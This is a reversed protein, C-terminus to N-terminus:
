SILGRYYQEGEWDSKSACHHGPHGRHHYACVWLLNAATEVWAGVQDPTSLGPYDLDLLDLSIGNLLAWEIHAHHLEIGAQPGGSSVPHMPDPQWGHQALFDPDDLHPDVGWETFTGPTQVMEPPPAPNGQADKCSGFGLRVGEVCRAFPRTSRHYHNFDVYHPDDPRAGHAPYAMTYRHTIAQNHAPVSAADSATDSM